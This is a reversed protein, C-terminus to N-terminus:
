KSEQERLLSAHTSDTKIILGLYKNGGNKILRGRQNETDIVVPLAPQLCVCVGRPM